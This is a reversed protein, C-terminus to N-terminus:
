SFDLVPKINWTCAVFTGLYWSVINVGVIVMEDPYYRSIMIIVNIDNIKLIKYIEWVEWDGPALVLINQDAAPASPAM